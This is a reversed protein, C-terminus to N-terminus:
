ESALAREAKAKFLAERLARALTSREDPTLFRGIIYATKGHEVRLLSAPSAPEDFEIRAFASPITASKTERGGKKHSLSLDKATIRIRTEQDTERFHWRFALWVAFVDFGFFAIIPLAGMSLFALGSIFSVTGVVAMVIAFARPSLANNPTLVADMYVTDGYDAM